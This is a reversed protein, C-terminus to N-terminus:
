TPPLTYFRIGNPAIIAILELATMDNLEPTDFADPSGGARRIAGKLSEIAKRMEDITTSNQDILVLADAFRKQLTM